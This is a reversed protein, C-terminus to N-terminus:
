EISTLSGMIKEFVKDQYANNTLIVLKILKDPFKVFYTTQSSNMMIVAENFHYADFYVKKAEAKGDVVTQLDNLDFTPLISIISLQATFSPDTITLKKLIKPDIVESVEEVVRASVPHKLTINTTVDQFLVWNKNEKSDELYQKMESRISKTIDDLKMANTHYYFAYVDDITFEKELLAESLAKKTNYFGFGREESYMYGQPKADLVFKNFFTKPLPNKDYYEITLIQPFSTQFPLITGYAGGGDTEAYIVAKQPLSPLHERLQTVIQRRPVGTVNVITNLNAQFVSNNNLFWGVFLIGSVLFVNISIKVRKFLSVIFESIFLLLFPFLIAAGVSPMYYHRSDFLDTGWAQIRLVNFVLPLSSVIILLFGLLITKADNKYKRMMIFVLAIIGFAVLYHLLNQGPGYVFFTRNQARSAPEGAYLYYIFPSTTQLISLMTAGPIFVQSLMSLPFSVTRYIILSIDIGSSASVADVSRTLKMSTEIWQNALSHLAPLIFRFPIFFALPISYIKVLYRLPFIGKELFIMFPIILILVVATEKTLLDLLLFLSSILLYLKKQTNLAKKLFLLSLIFFTVSLVNQGYFAAWTVVHMPIATFAFFIGGVFAVILKKEEKKDKFMLEKIFLFVLFSNFSHLLISMFAYFKFNLGFFLVNLFFIEEGIPVVHQGESLAGADTVSKIIPLLVGLPERTLPFYHTFHFWEDAEFYSSFLQNYLVFVLLAFCFFALLNNNLLYGCYKQVWNVIKM